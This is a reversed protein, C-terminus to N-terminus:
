GGTGLLCLALTLLLSRALHDEHVAARPLPGLAHLAVSPAAGPELTPAPLHQAAWAEADTDASVDWLCFLPICRALEPAMAAHTWGDRLFARHEASTCVPTGLQVIALVRDRLAPADVLALLTDAFPATSCVLVLRDAARPCLDLATADLASRSATRLGPAARALAETLSGDGIGLICVHALRNAIAAPVAPAWAAAAEWGCGPGLAQAPDCAPGLADPHATLADAAALDDVYMRRWRAAPDPLLALAEVLAREGDLAPAALSSVSPAFLKTAPDRGAPHYPVQARLAADWRAEIEADTGGQAQAEAWLQTSLAVKFVREWERQPPRPLTLWAAWAALAAAVAELGLVADM